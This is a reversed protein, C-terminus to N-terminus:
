SILPLYRHLWANRHLYSFSDQQKMDAEYIAADPWSPSGMESGRRRVRRSVWLRQSEAGLEAPAGEGRRSARLGGRWYKIALSWHDAPHDQASSVSVFGLRSLATVLSRCHPVGPNIIVYKAGTQRRDHSSTTERNMETLLIVVANQVTLLHYPSAVPSKELTEGATSNIAWSSVWPTV